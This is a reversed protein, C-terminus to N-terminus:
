YSLCLNFSSSMWSDVRDLSVNMWKQWNLTGMRGLLQSLGGGEQQLTVTCGYICNLSTCTWLNGPRRKDIVLSFQKMTYRRVSRASIRSKVRLYDESVVSIKKRRYFSSTPSKGWSSSVSSISSSTGFRLFRVLARTLCCCGKVIEKMDTWESRKVIWGM